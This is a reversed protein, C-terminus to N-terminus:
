FVRIFIPKDGKYISDNKHNREHIQEGSQLFPFPCNNFHSRM